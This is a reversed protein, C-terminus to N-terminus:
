LFDDLIDVQPEINRIKRGYKMEEYTEKLGEKWIALGESENAILNELIKLKTSYISGYIANRTNDLLYDSIVNPLNNVLFQTSYSTKSLQLILLYAMDVSLNSITSRTLKQQESLLLLIEKSQVINLLISFYQQNSFSLYQLTDNYLEKLFFDPNIDSLLKRDSELSGPFLNYSKFLEYRSIIVKFYDQIHTNRAYSMVSFLDVIKTSYLVKILEDNERMNYMSAIDGIVGKINNFVLDKIGRGDIKVVLKEYFNIISAVLFADDENLFEDKSFVYLEVPLEETISAQSTYWLLGTALDLFRVILISDGSNRAAIYILKCKGQLLVRSVIPDMRDIYGNLIHEIENTESISLKVDSLLRSVLKELIGTDELYNALISSDVNLRFIKLVLLVIELLPSELADEIFKSSYINLIESFTLVSLISGLLEIVVKEPDITLYIEDYLLQNIIPVFRNFFENNLSAKEGDSSSLMDNNITSATGEEVNGGATDVSEKYKMELLKLQEEHSKPGNTKPTEGNQSIMNDKKLTRAYNQVLSNDLPTKNILCAELHKLVDESTQDLVM